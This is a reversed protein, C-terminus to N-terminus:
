IKRAFLLVLLSVPSPFPSQNWSLDLLQRIREILILYVYLCLVVTVITSSMSVCVTSEKRKRLMRNSDQWIIQIVLDVTFNLFLWTLRCKYFCFLSLVLFMRERIKWKGKKQEILIRHQLTRRLSWCVRHCLVYPQVSSLVQHVGLYNATSKRFIKKRYFWIPIPNRFIIYYDNLNDVVNSSLFIRGM